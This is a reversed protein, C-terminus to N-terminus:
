DFSGASIDAQILEPGAARQDIDNGHGSLQARGTARRRPGTAPVQIVKAQPHVREIGLRNRGMQPPVVDLRPRDCRPVAGLAFPRRNVEGVRFAVGDFQLARRVGMQRLIGSARM